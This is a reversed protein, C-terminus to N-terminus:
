NGKKLREAEVELLPLMTAMLSVGSQGYYVPVDVDPASPMSMMQQIRKEDRTLQRIGIAIIRGPYLKTLRAYTTPDHQGDDGLLIFRMHPFDAMLQQAFELKHQVGSPIFTKPRPDIDRLLIPGQPFGHAHILERISGEVNWPSTSLYFFPAGPFLDAIKNYFVSMGPVSNRTNPDAFLLKTAAKVLEPVQSVMITDDVDSIIGVPAGDPAIFVPASVSSRNKVSYSVTHVGASMDRKTILDLYGQNDSAIMAMDSEANEDVSDFRSMQGVQATQVPIGDIHLGVPVHAAPIMLMNRFGRYIRRRLGHGPWSLTTRCVIRTFKETGYSVYPDVRPYFGLALALKTSLAYWVGFAGTIIQRILRVFFSKQSPKERVSPADITTRTRQVVIPKQDRVM